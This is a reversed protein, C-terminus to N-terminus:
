KAKMYNVMPGTVLPVVSGIRHPLLGPMQAAMYAPMPIREGVRRLLPEKM